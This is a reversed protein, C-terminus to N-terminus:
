RIVQIEPHPQIATGALGAVVLLAVAALLVAARRAAAAALVAALLAVGAAALAVAPGDGAIAAPTNADFATSGVLGALVAGALAVVTTAVRRVLGAVAVLAALVAAVLLATAPGSSLDDFRIPDTGALDAPLRIWSVRLAAVTAGSALLLVVSSLIRM